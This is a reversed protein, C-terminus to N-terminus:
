TALCHGLFVLHVTTSTYTTSFTSTTTCTLDLLSFSTSQITTSSHIFFGKRPASASLVQRVPRRHRSQHRKRIPPSRSISVARKDLRASRSRSSRSTRRRRSHHRHRPRSPSKPRGLPATPRGHHSTSGLNPPGTPFNPPLYFGPPASTTTCQAPHLHGPMPFTPISPPSPSPHLPQPAPVM